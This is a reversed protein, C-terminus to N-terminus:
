INGIIFTILTQALAIVVLGIAAYIITNKANSAKNSDGASSAYMLGGIIMIIVAALGAVVAVARAIRLILGNPGTLADGGGPECAASQSAGREDCIEQFVDDAAAPAAPVFLLCLGLTALLLRFRKM